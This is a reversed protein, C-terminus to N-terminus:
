TARNIILYDSVDFLGQQGRYRIPQSFKTANKFVWCYPGFAWQTDQEETFYKGIRDIPVCDIMDVRGLIVGRPFESLRKMTPNIELFARMTEEDQKLAAHILLPGRHSCYWKRNEVPKGYDFFSSAWPQWVSVTKM